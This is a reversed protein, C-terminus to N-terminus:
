EGEEEEVPEEGTEEVAEEETVEVEEEVEEPPPEPLGTELQLLTLDGTSRDHALLTTGSGPMPMLADDLYPEIGPQPIAREITYGNWNIYARVATAGGDTSLLYSGDPLWRYITWGDQPMPAFRGDLYLLGRRARYAAILADPLVWQLPDIGPYSESPHLVSEITPGPTEISVLAPYPGGGSGSKVLYSDAYPCKRYEGSLDLGDLRIKAGTTTEIMNFESTLELSLMGTFYDLYHATDPVIRYFGCGVLYRSDSTFGCGYRHTSRALAVLRSATGDSECLIVGAPSPLPMGTQVDPPLLERLVCIHSGNPSPTIHTVEGFGGWGDAEPVWDVSWPTSEGTILDLVFLSDAEPTSVACLVRSRDLPAAATVNRGIPREAELAYAVQGILLATGMVLWQKNM